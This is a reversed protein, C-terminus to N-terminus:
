PREALWALIRTPLDDRNAHTIQWLECEPRRKVEAIFGSGRLGISAVIPTNLSILARMAAIFRESLCEMEGIEDVLYVHANPDPRLLLAANDLAQVDVGYKGVRHTKPFEVHAIVSATGNFSVLRFGCRQGGERIEETYFGRIGETKLRDAVRRIVTTKGIGPTGTISLVHPKIVHNESVVRREVLSTRGTRAASLNAPPVYAIISQARKADPNKVPM